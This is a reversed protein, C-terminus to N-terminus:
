VKEQLFHGQAGELRAERGRTPCYGRRPSRQDGAKQGGKRNVERATSDKGSREQNQIKKKTANLLPRRDREQRVTFGNEANSSKKKRKQKSIAFQQGRQRQDVKTLVWREDQRGRGANKDRIERGGKAERIIELLRRVKLPFGSRPGPPQNKKASDRGIERRENRAITQIVPHHRSNTKRNKEGEKHVLIPSAEDEPEGRVWAEIGARNDTHQNPTGLRILPHKYSPGRLQYEHVKGSLIDNQVRPFSGRRDYEQRLFSGREQLNWRMEKTKQEQCTREWKKKGREKETEPIEKDKEGM